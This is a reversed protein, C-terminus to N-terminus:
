TPYPPTDCGPLPLQYANPFCDGEELHVLASQIRTLLVPSRRRQGLAHAALVCLLHVVIALGVTLELANRTYGLVRGLRIHSKLWRFFLEIQWRLIYIGVVEWAQLDWRDSLVQYVKPKAGQRAAKPLPSVEATVLRLGKLVAGARNNASGLSVKQDKLVRIRGASLGPLTGQVPLETLVVLRAQPHRRTVFHVKNTVLNAFRRHSYYGLDYVQTQGALAALRQPNDLLTQDLGLIDNTHTDTVLVHQPLDLAPQYHFHLRLQTHGKLMDGPWPCLRLSLSLSTSDLLHLDPPLAALRGCRRVQAMLPPIIGALFAAPRTTNSHAWQSFSVALGHPRRPHALGSRHVLGRCHAFAEYSQRLSPKQALGHFLLLCGHAFSHFHKRYREAQCRQAAAIFHPRLWCLQNALWRHLFRNPGQQAPQAQPPISSSPACTM